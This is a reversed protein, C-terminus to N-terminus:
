RRWGCIIRDTQERARVACSQPQSDGTGRTNAPIEQVESLTIPQVRFGREGLSEGFEGLDHNAEGLMDREGHGTVFVIWREGARAVRNLANTIAQETHESVHQVRDDYEIRLEGDTGIGLRRIENPVSEPDVFRVTLDHKYRRYRDLTERIRKRLIEKDSAYATINVPHKLRALLTQSSISLSNRAGASWDWQFRHQSSLWASFGVLTALCVPFLLQTFRSVFNARQGPM